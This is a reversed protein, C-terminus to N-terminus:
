ALLFGAIADAFFIKLELYSCFIVYNVVGKNDVVVKHLVCLDAMERRCQVRNEFHYM